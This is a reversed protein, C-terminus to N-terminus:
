NKRLKFQNIANNLAEVESSLSKAHEAVENTSAAQEEMVSAIEQTSATTQQSVASLEGMMSVVKNKQHDIKEFSDVNEQLSKLMNTLAETLHVMSEQVTSVAVRQQGSIENTDNIVEVLNETDVLITQLIIQINNTAEKSSEALRRVEDAVVAFGKGHEGARAAEISANLALLNTQDTIETITQAVDSISRSKENLQLIMNTVQQFSEELNKYSKTMGDVKENGNSLQQMSIQITKKNYDANKTLIDIEQNLTHVSKTGKEVELAQGTAGSAIEETAHTVSTISQSNEEAITTLGTTAQQITEAHDHVQHILRRMSRLMENYSHALQGIENNVSEDLESGLDGKATKSLSAQFKSIIKRLVNSLVFAAIAGIMISVIMALIAVTNFQHMKDGFIKKDTLTVVKWNLTPITTIVGSYATRNLQIDKTELHDNKYLSPIWGYQKKFLAKDQVFDNVGEVKGSQEPNLNKGDSHQMFGAVVLGKSDLLIYKSHSAKELNARINAITSLDIDYGIAGILKGNRFVPVEISTMIKKLTTDEYVDMWQTKPNAVLQKYTRTDRVDLKYDAKPAIHLKGTQFDMYYVSTYSANKKKVSTVMQEIKKMSASNALSDEVLSALQEASVRYNELQLDIQEAANKADKKNTSADDQRLINSAVYQNTVTTIGVVLVVIMCIFIIWKVRISVNKWKKFNM